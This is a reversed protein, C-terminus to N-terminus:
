GDERDTKNGMLGTQVSQFRVVSRFGRRSSYRITEQITVKAIGFSSNKVVSQQPRVNGTRHLGMVQDTGSAFMVRIGQVAETRTTTARIKPVTLSAAPSAWGDGVITIAQGAEM